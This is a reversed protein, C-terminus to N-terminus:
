EYEMEIEHESPTKCQFGCKNWFKEIDENKAMLKVKCNVDKLIEKIIRQGVGQGRYQRVVEFEDIWITNSEYPDESLRILAITEGDKEFAYLPDNEGFNYWQLELNEDKKLQMIENYDIERYNMSM